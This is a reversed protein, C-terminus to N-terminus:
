PNDIAAILSAIVDKEADNLVKNTQWQQVEQKVQAVDQYGLHYAISSIVSQRSAEDGMDALAQMVGERDKTFLEGVIAAYQEASAGDLNVTALFLSTYHEPQILSHHTYLLELTELAKGNSLRNYEMWDMGEVHALMNTAKDEASMDEGEYLSLVREEPSEHDTVASTAPESPSSAPAKSPTSSCATVLILLALVFGYYTAHRKFM